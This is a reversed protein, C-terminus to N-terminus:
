DPLVQSVDVSRRKSVARSDNQIDVYLQPGGQM